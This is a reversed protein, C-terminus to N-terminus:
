ENGSSVIYDIRYMPFHRRLAIAKGFLILGAITPCYKDLDKSHRAIAKLSYLLDQDNWDLEAANPNVKAREQRYVNVAQPDLDDLTADLIPITDYSQNQREQYFLELDQDTCKVDASGIRRFAGKPLGRSVAYIPKESPTM